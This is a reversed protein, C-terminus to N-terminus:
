TPSGNAFANKKNFLLLASIAPATYIAFKGCKKLFERRDDLDLQSDDEVGNGIKEEADKM